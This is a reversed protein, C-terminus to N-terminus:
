HLSPPLNLQLWAAEALIWPVIGCCQIAHTSGIRAHDSPFPHCAKWSLVFGSFRRAPGIPSGMITALPVNEHLYCAFLKRRLKSLLNNGSGRLRLGLCIAIQELAGNPCYRPSGALQGNASM